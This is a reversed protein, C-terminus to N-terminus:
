EMSIEPPKAFLNNKSQLASPTILKEHSPTEFM